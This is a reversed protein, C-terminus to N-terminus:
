YLNLIFKFLFSVRSSYWIESCCSQRLLWQNFCITKKQLSCKLWENSLGCIGYNELKSLLTGHEVTKSVKQLDVFNGCDINAEDLKKLPVYVGNSLLSIPCYNWFDLKPNKKYVSVVKATKLISPFVDPFFLFVSILHTMRHVSFTKKLYSWFNTLFVWLDM